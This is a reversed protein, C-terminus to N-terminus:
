TMVDDEKMQYLGCLLEFQDQISGAVYEGILM